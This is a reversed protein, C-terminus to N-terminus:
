SESIIRGSVGEGGETKNTLPGTGLDCRGIESILEKELEFSVEETLGSYLVDIIPKLGEVIIKNIKNRKHSNIVISDNIADRYHILRRKNNKGKGVYFPEYEFEYEGYKFEGCKRADLYIYVYYENSM